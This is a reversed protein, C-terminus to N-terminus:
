AFKYLGNKDGIKNIIDYRTFKLLCFLRQKIIQSMLFSAILM